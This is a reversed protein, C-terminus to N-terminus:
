ASIQLFIKCALGEARWDLHMEGKLQERIMRKIVSTGFGERTPKKAPPGGTETWRLIFQGDAACSWTIEVQGKPVSLSGYKAANTALEHLTVAIAQATNPELVLNPGDIRARAAGDQLYPTLEQKAINSLEAGIWRSQIFLAHVNALAQVRGEIAHKLGDVTDSQSLKVTAQVTALVNKARHEAERALTTIQEDSRKRETIDRAIKSAGVIKGEANKIPSVTLSVM